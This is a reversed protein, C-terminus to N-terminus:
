GTKGIGIVSSITEEWNYIRVGRQWLNIAWIFLPNMEPSELRGNFLFTDIKTKIVTAKYYLKFDLLM